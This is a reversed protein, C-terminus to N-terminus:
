QNYGLSRSFRNEYEWIQKAGECTENAQEQHNNWSNVGANGTFSKNWASCDMTPSLYNDVPGMKNTASLINDVVGWIDFDDGPKVRNFTGPMFQCVGQAGAYSQANPNWNSETICIVEVVGHYVGDTFDFGDKMQEASATLCSATGVIRAAEEPINFKEKTGHRTTRYLNNIGVWETEPIGNLLAKGYDSLKLIPIESTAPLGAMKTFGNSESWSYYKGWIENCGDVLAFNKKLNLEISNGNSSSTLASRVSPAISNLVQQPPVVQQSTSPTKFGLVLLALVLFAVLGKLIDM